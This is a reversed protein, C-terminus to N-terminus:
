RKVRTRTLTLVYVRDVKGSKHLLDTIVNMTAGSRYLDDFLMVKQYKYREDKIEFVNKLAKIRDSYDEIEKLQTTTHSKSLYNFDVKVNVLNGIEKAIEYVPQYPRELNSPPVPIIASLYPTVLRTGLFEATIKAIQKVKSHDEAYKLQYLLEGIETRTTDFKGDGLPISSITHYDMAWGAKWNGELDIVNFEM